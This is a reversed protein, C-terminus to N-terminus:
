SSEPWQLETSQGCGYVKIGFNWSNIKSWWHVAAVQLHCNSTCLSIWHGPKSVFFSFIGIIITCHGPRSTSHIVCKVYLGLLTLTSTQDRGPCMCLQSYLFLTQRILNVVMTGQVQTDIGPCAFIGCLDLTAQLPSWVTTEQVQTDIGPCAFIGCQHLTAQLPSWVELLFGVPNRRWTYHYSVYRLFESIKPKINWSSGSSSIRHATSICLETIVAVDVSYHSIDHRTFSANPVVDHSKWSM